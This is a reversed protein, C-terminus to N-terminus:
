NTGTTEQGDSSLELFDRAGDEKAKEMVHKYM